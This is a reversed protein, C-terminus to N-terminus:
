FGEAPGSTQDLWRCVGWAYIPATAEGKAQVGCIRSGSAGCNAQTVNDGSRRGEVRNASTKYGGGTGSSCAALNSAAGSGALSCESNINAAQATFPMSFSAGVAALYLLGHTIHNRSHGDM